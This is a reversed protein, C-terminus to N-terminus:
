KLDLSNKLLIRATEPYYNKITGAASMIYNKDILVEANAPPLLMPSHKDEKCIMKLIKKGEPLKTLAGGTGIIYKINTLDKGTIVETSGTFTYIMKKMGAHRNVATIVAKETLRRSLKISHSNDPIPQLEKLDEDIKIKSELNYLNEANVYVGLDGEVTRKKIPEPEVAKKLNKLSGKTISHVDTTAGGVDIALLDNYEEALIELAEMVAAPTPIIKKDVLSELKEMGPAHIIHESFLEQIMKRAPETNLEDISPYVNDICVINKNREKFAKKIVSSLEINGAYLFPTENLSEQQALMKANALTIKREGYDVGGAIIILKPKIEEIQEIQFDMLEGATIMKIVAGAGLSAEKAARATMDYTLGHVTMKLGGAASSNVLIDNWEIKEENLAEAANKIGNEIGIMVNNDEVTTKSLSKAIIRPKSSNIGDILNIKTITSGIEVTILDIKM